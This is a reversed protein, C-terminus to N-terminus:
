ALVHSAVPAIWGEGEPVRLVARRIQSIMSFLNEDKSVEAHFGSRHAYSRGTGEERRLLATVVIEPFLARLYGATTSGDLVPLEPDMLVVDPLQGELCALLEAGNAARLIVKLFGGSQEELERSLISRYMPDADVVALQVPKRPM